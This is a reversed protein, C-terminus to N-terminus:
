SEGEPQDNYNAFSFCDNGAISMKPPGPSTQVREPRL